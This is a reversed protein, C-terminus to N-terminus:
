TPEGTPIAVLDAVRMRFLDRGGPWVKPNGPDVGAAAARAALFGASPLLLEIASWRDSTTALWLRSEVGPPLARVTARALAAWSPEAVVVVSTAVANRYLGVHRGHGLNRLDTATVQGLGAEMVRTELDVAVNRLMPTYLCLVRERDSDHAARLTGDDALWRARIPDLSPPDADAGLATLLGLSLSLVSNTAIWGDKGPRPCSIVAGDDGVTARLADAPQNTLVVVTASSRRAMEVALQADPHSMSDSVVFVVGLELRTVAYEAPTLVVAPRHWTRQYVAAGLHAVALSGGSAVFAAGGGLRDRLGAHDATRRWDAWERYTAPLATM